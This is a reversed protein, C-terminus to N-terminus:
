FPESFDVQQLREETVTLLGAAVDGQGSLLAPILREPPTPILSVHLRVHKGGANYRNNLEKEFELLLEYQSGSQRGGDIWYQSRSPPVLARIVRREVIAALDGTFPQFLRPQPDEQAGARLALLAAIAPLYAKMTQHRLTGGRNDCAEVRALRFPPMPREHWVGNVGRM